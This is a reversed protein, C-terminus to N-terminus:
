SGVWCRLYRRCRAARYRWGGGVPDQAQVIFDIAKQAAPQLAPDRTMGYAECLAISALGHGYMQGGPQWMSGTGGFQHMARGLFHLGMDVNRKYKGQLHTEGAGLFPLLAMATAAVQAQNRNGPHDCRGGCHPASQHDFSWSGDTNQHESSGGCDAAVADESGPTGGGIGVLRARTASSLRAQLSNGISDGLGALLQGEGGAGGGTGAPVALWGFPDIQPASPVALGIIDLSPSGPPAAATPALVDELSKSPATTTEEGSPQLSDGDDLGEGDGEGGILTTGVGPALSTLRSVTYMALMLICALHFVTSILWSPVQHWFAALSSMEEDATIAPSPTTRYAVAPAPARGWGDRPRSGPGRCFATRLFIPGATPLPPPGTRSAAAVPAASPAINPGGAAEPTGM